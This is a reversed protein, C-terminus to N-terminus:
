LSAPIRNRLQYEDPFDIDEELDMEEMTMHDWMTAVTDLMRLANFYTLSVIYPFDVDSWHLVVELYLEEITNKM